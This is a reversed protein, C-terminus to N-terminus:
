DPLQRLSPPLAARATADSLVYADLFESHPLAATPDRRHEDILHDLEELVIQDMLEDEQGDAMSYLVVSHIGVAVITLLAIGVAARRRLSHQIAVRCWSAIVWAM